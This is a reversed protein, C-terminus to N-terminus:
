KGKIYNNWPSYGAERLERAERIKKMIPTEEKDNLFHDLDHGSKHMLQTCEECFSLTGLTSLHNSYVALNRKCKTCTSAPNNRRREM